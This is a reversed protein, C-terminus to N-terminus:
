QQAVLTKLWGSYVEVYNDPHVMDSADEAITQGSHAAVVHLHPIGNIGLMKKLQLKADQHEYPLALWGMTAYTRLFAEKSGDDSIYVISFHGFEKNVELYFQRLKDTFLRCPPAWHAGFYLAVIHSDKLAEETQGTTTSNLLLNEGLLLEM